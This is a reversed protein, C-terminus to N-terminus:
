TADLRVLVGLSVPRAVRLHRFAPGEDIIGAFLYNKDQVQVDELFIIYDDGINDFEEFDKFFPTSSQESKLTGSLRYGEPNTHLTLETPPTIPSLGM